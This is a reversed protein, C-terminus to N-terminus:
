AMVKRLRFTLWLVPLMALFYLLYYIHWYLGRYHLEEWPFLSDMFTLSSAVSPLIHFLVAVFFPWARLRRVSLLVALSTGVNFIMQPPGSEWAMLLVVKWPYSENVAAIMGVFTGLEELTNYRHIEAGLWTLIAAISYCTGFLVGDQWSRVSVVMPRLMLWRIGERNLGYVVARVAYYLFHPGPNQPNSFYLTLYASTVPHLPIKVLFVIAAAGFAIPLCAWTAQTRRQWFIAFAVPFGIIVSFKAILLLM